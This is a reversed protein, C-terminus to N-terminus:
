LLLPHHYHYYHYWYHNPLMKRVVLASSRRRRKVQRAVRLLTAAAKPNPGQISLEKCRIFDPYVDRDGCIMLNSCSM